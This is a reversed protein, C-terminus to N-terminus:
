SSAAPQDYVHVDIRSQPTIAMIEIRDSLSTDAFEIQPEVRYDEARPALDSADLRAVIDAPGLADLLSPPGRLVIGIEGPNVVVRYEDAVIEVTIGDLRRPVASESIVITMTVRDREDVTVLPDDTLVAVERTVPERRGAVNVIETSLSTLEAVRSAPGTVSVTAPEVIKDGIDFGTAPSGEVVANIPLDVRVKEDLQIRLRPPDIREVSVGFPRDIDSADLTIVNDGVVAGFMDIQPSLQGPTLDRTRAPMGRVTVEVTLAAPDLLALDSPINQLQVPVSSVIHPVDADPVVSWLGLALALSVLKLPLNDFPRLNAWAASIPNM